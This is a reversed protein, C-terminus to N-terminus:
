YPRKALRALLRIREQAEQLSALFQLERHLQLVDACPPTLTLQGTAKDFSVAAHGGVFVLATPTEHFGEAPAHQLLSLPELLTLPHMGQLTAFGTAQRCWAGGLGAGAPRCGGPRPRLFLKSYSFLLAQM